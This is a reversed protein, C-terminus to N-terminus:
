KRTPLHLLSPLSPPFRLSPLGTKPDPFADWIHLLDSLHTALQPLFDRPDTVHRRYEKSNDQFDFIDHFKQVSPRFWNIELQNKNQCLPYTFITVRDSATDM